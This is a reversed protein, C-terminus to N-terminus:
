LTLMMIETAAAVPVRAGRSRGSSSTSKTTSAPRGITSEDHAIAVNSTHGGIRVFEPGPASTSERVGCFTARVDPVYLLV